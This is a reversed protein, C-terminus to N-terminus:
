HVTKKIAMAFIIATQGGIGTLQTYIQRPESRPLFGVKSNFMLIAGNVLASNNATERVSILETV